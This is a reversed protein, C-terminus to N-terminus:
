QLLIVLILNVLISVLEEIIALPAFDAVNQSILTDGILIDLTGDNDMDAVAPASWVRNPM